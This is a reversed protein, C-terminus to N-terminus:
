RRSVANIWIPVALGFLLGGALTLVPASDILGVLRLALYVGVPAWAFLSTM